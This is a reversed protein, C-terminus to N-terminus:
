KKGSKSSTANKSNSNTSGTNSRKDEHSTNDFLSSLGGNTISTYAIRIGYALVIFGGIGFGLVGYISTLVDWCFNIARVAIDTGYDFFNM